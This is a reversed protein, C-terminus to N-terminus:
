RLAPSQNPALGFRDSPWLSITAKGILLDHPVCGFVRSDSSNDRNDGMVYYSDAPCVVPPGSVRWTIHIYPETLPHGNIRVEGGTTEISENPLGIIRKVLRKGTPDQPNHLIIVDGRGPAGFVDHKGGPIFPLLKSLNDTDIRAYSLQNVILFESDQLTPDMSHGEVQYTGFSARVCLFVLIALLCTEVVERIIKSAPSPGAPDSGSAPPPLLLVPPPAPLLLLPPEPQPADDM